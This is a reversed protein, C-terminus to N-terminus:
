RDLVDFAVTAGVRSTARSTMALDRFASFGGLRRGNIVEIGASSKVGVNAYKRIAALHTM